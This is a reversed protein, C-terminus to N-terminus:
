PEGCCVVGPSALGRGVVALLLLAALGAAPGDLLPLGDVPPPVSPEQILAMNWRLPDLLTAM